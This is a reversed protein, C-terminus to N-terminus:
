AFGGLLWFGAAAAALCLGLSALVNALAAAPRGGRALVLTQLSFSSVTTYSGLIGIVMLTWPLAHSGAAVETIFLAALAGVLPSGSVNVALTGWPFGAGTLREIFGSVAFRAAGGAAGGIFVAVIHLSGLEDM